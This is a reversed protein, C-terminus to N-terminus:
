FEGSITFNYQRGTNPGWTHLGDFHAHNFHWHWTAPSDGAKTQTYNFVNNIGLRLTLFSSYKFALSTDLTFFSPARQPKAILNPSDTVTNEISTDRNIYHDPYAGYKSLDRSGILNFTLAHIWKQTELSSRLQVREEIVATPLKRKYGDQFEFKEFSLELLWKSTPKYGLLLDNVWIDFSESTNRYQIPQNFAEFGFAMNQLHTYHSSATAYYTPKNLSLSYVASHAKELKSIDVEYGGENNGHQSEFFTLPSRYGLGYSFRQTLHPSLRHLVQLRPALVNDKVNNDLELWHIEIRDARLALDIDFNYSPSYNYHIYTAYSSFNFHDKKIDRESDSPYREFLQESASRLREDKFFLGVTFFHNSFASWQLQTDGVFLHDIHSYDFGHQYISQQEQRAYGLKGQFTVDDTLHHTLNLASEYRDIEVWDTIKHPDGMYKNDVRAGVFDTEQAASSSVTNPKSPNTAGGLIKLHAHGVRFTLDSHNRPRLRSKFLLNYHSRQPNESVNNNDTDWDNTRYFQGGLSFGKNKQSNHHSYLLSYNQAKNNSFDDFGTSLSYNSNASLPDVTLINLTGGIAEPNTLSAGAGRMVQIESVGNKPINDVGYFSSVASHLPLGDVLVSTHEGKLGNITLRKAGCNACYTQAGVGVQDKVLDFLNQRSSDSLKEKPVREVKFISNNDIPQPTSAGNIIVAPVEITTQDVVKQAYLESTLTLIFLFFFRLQM